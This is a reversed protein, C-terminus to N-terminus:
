HFKAEHLNHSLSFRKPSARQKSSSRTVRKSRFHLCCIADFYQHKDVLSCPTVDWFGNINIAVLSESFGGPEMKLIKKIGFSLLKLLVGRELWICTIEKDDHYVLIQIYFEIKTGQQSVFWVIYSLALIRFSIWRYALKDVSGLLQRFRGHSM